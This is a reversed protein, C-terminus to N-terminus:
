ALRVRQRVRQDLEALRETQLREGLSDLLAVLHVLELALSTVEGLSKQEGARECRVSQFTKEFGTGISLVEGRM